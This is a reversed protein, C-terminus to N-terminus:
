LGPVQQQKWPWKFGALFGASNGVPEATNSEEINSQYKVNGARWNDIWQRAPSPQGKADQLALVM